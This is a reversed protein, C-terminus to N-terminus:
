HSLRDARYQLNDELCEFRSEFKQEAVKSSEIITQTANDLEEVRDQTDKVKADLQQTGNGIQTELQSWINKLM